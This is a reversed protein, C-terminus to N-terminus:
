QLKQKNVRATNVDTLEQNGSAFGTHTAILANRVPVGIRPAKKLLAAMLASELAGWGLRGLSTQMGPLPNSEGQNSWGEPAPQAIYNETTLLDLGQAVLLPLLSKFLSPNPTPDEQSDLAKRHALLAELRADEPRKGVPGM